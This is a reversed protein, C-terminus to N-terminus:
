ESNYVSECDDEEDSQLFEDNIELLITEIDPTDQIDQIDKELLLAREETDLDEYRVEELKNVGRVEGVIVKKESKEEVEKEGLERIDEEAKVEEYDSEKNKHKNCLIGGKRITANCSEGQRKGKTLVYPCKPKNTIKPKNTVREGININININISNCTEEWLKYLVDKPINLSQHITEVYQTNVQDLMAEIKQSLLKSM